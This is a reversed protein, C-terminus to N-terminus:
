QNGNLINYGLRNVKVDIVLYFLSGTIYARRLYIVGIIQPDLTNIHRGSLWFPYVVNSGEAFLNFYGTATQNFYTNYNYPATFNYISSLTDFEAKTFTPLGTKPNVLPSGFFTSSGPRQFALDGSRLYFNTSTGASDRMQIDKNPDNTAVENLLVGNKLDVASLNTYTGNAEQVELNNFVYVGTFLIRTNAVATDADTVVATTTRTFYGSKRATVTYSGDSVGSIIFNGSANTMVTSTAPTTTIVVSDLNTASISDKINGRIVGDGNSVGTTSECGSITLFYLPVVSLLLVILFKKM